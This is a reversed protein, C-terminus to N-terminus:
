RPDEPSPSPDLTADPHGISTPAPNAPDTVLPVRRIRGPRNRKTRQRAQELSWLTVAVAVALPILIVVVILLLWETVGM